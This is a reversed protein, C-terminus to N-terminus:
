DNKLKPLHGTAREVLVKLAPNKADALSRVKVHRLSKGTGELLKAPDKLDAGYYFGPNVHKSAPMIYVFQESMKKPGVGYGVNGQTEWPVEVVAPMVEAVLKRLARAIERIDEPAKKIAGEFSGGGVTRM